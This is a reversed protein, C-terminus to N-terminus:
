ALVMYVVDITAAGATLGALNHAGDPTFTAALQQADFYGTPNVGASGERADTGGALLDEGAIIANPDTGGVDLSVVTAGGGTFPTINRLTRGVVRANAPLPVGLPISQPSGNVANTLDAHTVAVTRKGTTESWPVPAPVSGGTGAMSYEPTGDWVFELTGPAQAILLDYDTPALGRLESTVDVGPGRNPPSPSAPVTRPPNGAALTVPAGTLNYAILVAM